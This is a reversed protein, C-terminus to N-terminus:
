RTEEGLRSQSFLSTNGRIAETKGKELVRCGQPVALSVARMRGVEMVAAATQEDDQMRRERGRRGNGPQEGTHFPRPWAIENRFDMPREADFPLTIESGRM